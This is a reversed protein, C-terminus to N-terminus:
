NFPLHFLLPLQCLQYEVTDIKTNFDLKGITTLEQKIIRCLLCFALSPLMIYSAYKRELQQFNAQNLYGKM